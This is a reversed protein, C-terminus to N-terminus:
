NLITLAFYKKDSATQNNLKSHATDVAEVIAKGDPTGLRM